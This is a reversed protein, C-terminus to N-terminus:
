RSFNDLNTNSLHLIDVLLLEIVKNSQLRGIFHWRIDPCSKELKFAKEELENVYNEGFHRQGDQYSALIFEFPFTKSVAVLRAVATGNQACLETIKQLISRLNQVVVETM